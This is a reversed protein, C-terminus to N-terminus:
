DGEFRGLRGNETTFLWKDIIGFERIELKGPLDNYKLETMLSWKESAVVMGPM